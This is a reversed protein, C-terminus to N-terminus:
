PAAQAYLAQWMACDESRFNALEQWEPDLQLRRDNADPDPGYVPWPAPADPGNPDGTRAFRAWYANMQDSVTQSEPTPMLPSGFVHSIEAAHSVKLFGNGLAWVVNFNYAYVPLGAKAARRMSDHSSCVIIQDGVARTFADVYSGAFRSAPYQAAIQAAYQGYRQTLVAMYAAEDQPQPLGLVFLAGEDTNSGTLFPVKAVDGREFLDRTRESVFEGDVVVGFQNSKGLSAGVNGGTIAASALLDEASKARLCGLQDAGACGANELFSALASAGQAAPRGGLGGGATCGGSQSIARHFLGRSLPSAIHYCVDTAGASEGFITVNAPDGGFAGISDRVWELAAHQDLLGQNGFPSGEAPLAAHPFFGMVGVRYNITVLVIGHREAFFRGDFWLQETSPVVDRTSGNMNAGGHIWVMVPAKVPPPQPSWVNLYLCDENTSAASGQSAGQACPESFESEHRVGSWRENKVPAKWRLDGTPPKAFPIKLFRRTGEVVDGQVRGDAIAVVLPDGAGPDEARPPDDGGCGWAATAVILSLIPIARSNRQYQRRLM